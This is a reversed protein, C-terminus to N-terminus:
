PRADVLAGMPRVFASADAFARDFEVNQVSFAGRSQGPAGNQWDHISMKEPVTLGDVTQWEDFVMAFTGTMASADVGMRHPDISFTVLYLLDTDTDVYATLDDTLVGTGTPLHFSYVECLRGNVTQTGLEKETVGPEALVFPMGIFQYPVLAYFRPPAKIAQHSPQIWVDRGDYGLHYTDGARGGDVRVRGTELDVTQMDDGAGPSFPWGVLDYRMTQFQRWNWFGGHSRLVHEFAQASSVGALLAIVTLAAARMTLSSRQALPLLSPRRNLGSESNGM